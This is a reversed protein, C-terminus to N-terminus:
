NDDEEVAAVEVEVGPAVVVAIVEAAEPHGAEAIVVEVAVGPAPHGRQHHHDPNSLVLMTQVPNGHQLVQGAQNVPQHRHPNGRGPVPVPGV